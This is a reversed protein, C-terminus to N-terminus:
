STCSSALPPALSRAPAARAGSLCCRSRRSTTTPSPQVQTSCFRIQSRIQFMALEKVLAERGPMDSESEVRGPEKQASRIRIQSPIRLKALEKMLTELRPMGSYPGAMVTVSGGMIMGARLLNM